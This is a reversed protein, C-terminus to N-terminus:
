AARVASIAPLAYDGTGTVLGRALKLAGHTLELGLFRNYDVPGPLELNRTLDRAFGFQNYYPADGVLLIARHNRGIARAISVNILKAGLGHGQLDPHVAVPGLLLADVQGAAIHWYRITGVVDGDQEAVLALGDVPLRNNRLKNVTKTFRSAGFTADLIGEIAVADEVYEPRIHFM